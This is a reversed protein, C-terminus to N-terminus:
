ITLFTQRTKFVVRALCGTPLSSTLLIVPNTSVPVMGNDVNGLVPLDYIRGYVLLTAHYDQSIDLRIISGENLGTSFSQIIPNVLGLEARISATTGITIEFTSNTLNNPSFYSLLQIDLAVPSVCEFTGTLTDQIGSSLQKIIPPGYWGGYKLLTVTIGTPNSNIDTRISKIKATAQYQAGNNHFVQLIFPKYPNMSGYLYSRVSVPNAGPLIVGSIVIENSGPVGMKHEGYESLGTIDTVAFGQEEFGKTLSISVSGVQLAIVAM